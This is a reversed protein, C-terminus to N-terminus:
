RERKDNDYKIGLFESMNGEITLRLDANCMEKICEDLKAENPGVLFSDDIYLLYITNGKTFGCEDNKCQKFGM